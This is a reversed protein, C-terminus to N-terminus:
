RKFTNIQLSEEYVSSFHKEALITLYESLEDKNGSQLLQVYKRQESPTLTEASQQQGDVKCRIAYGIGQKIVAADSINSISVAPGISYQTPMDVDSLSPLRTSNVLDYLIRNSVQEESQFHKMSFLKTTVWDWFMNLVEKLKFLLQNAQYDKDHAGERLVKQAQTALLATNNRESRRSLVESVLMDEDDAIDAYNSDSQVKNWLPDERMIEKISQWGEPNAIQMANSWLHTYEHLLTRPNMGDKTLYINGNSTWGYITGSKDKLWQGNVEKYEAINTNDVYIGNYLTQKLSKLIEVMSLDLSKNIKKDSYFFETVHAKGEKKLNNDRKRAVVISIGEEEDRIDFNKVFAGHDSIRLTVANGYPTIIEKYRSNSGGEKKCELANAIDGLFTKTNKLPNIQYENILKDINNAIKTRDVDTIATGKFSSKEEPLATVSTKKKSFEVLGDNIQFLVALDDAAKYVPINARRLAKMVAEVMLTNMQKENNM